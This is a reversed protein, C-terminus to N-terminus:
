HMHEEDPIREGFAMVIHAVIHKAVCAECVDLVDCTSQINKRILELALDMADESHKPDDDEEEEAM